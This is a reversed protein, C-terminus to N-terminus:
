LTELAETKVDYHFVVAFHSIETTQSDMPIDQFFDIVSVSYSIHGLGRKNSVSVFAVQFRTM